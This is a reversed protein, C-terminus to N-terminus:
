KPAKEAAPLTKAFYELVKLGVAHGAKKRAQKGAIKESLDAPRATPKDTFLVKGESRRVINIEM